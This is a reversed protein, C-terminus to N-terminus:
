RPYGGVAILFYCGINFGLIIVKGRKKCLFHVHAVASVSYLPHIYMYSICGHVHKRPWGGCYPHMCTHTCTYTYACAHIHQICGQIYFFVDFLNYVYINYDFSHMYNCSSITKMSVHYVNVHICVFYTYIYIFTYRHIFSTVLILFDLILCLTFTLYVYM